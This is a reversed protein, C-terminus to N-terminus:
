ELDLLFVHLIELWKTNIHSCALRQWSCGGMNPIVVNDLLLEQVNGRDKALLEKENVFDYTGSLIHPLCRSFIVSSFWSSLGSM